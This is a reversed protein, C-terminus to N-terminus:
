ISNIICIFNLIKRKAKSLNENEIPLRELETRELSHLVNHVQYENTSLNDEFYFEINFAIDSTFNLKQICPVIICSTGGEIKEVFLLNDKLRKFNSTKILQKEDFFKLRKKGEFAQM